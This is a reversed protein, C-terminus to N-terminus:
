TLHYAPVTSIRLDLGHAPRKATGIMVSLVALSLFAAAPWAFRSLQRPLRGAQSRTLLVTWHLSWVVIVAVLLPGARHRFESIDGNPAIPALFMELTAALLLLWPLADEIARRRRWLLGLLLFAPLWTPGLMGLLTLPADILVAGIRGIRLVMAAQLGELRKPQHYRNVTDLYDLLFQLPDNRLAPWSLAAM